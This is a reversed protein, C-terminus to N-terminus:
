SPSPTLEGLPDASVTPFPDEGTLSPDTSPQPKTREDDIANRVKVSVLSGACEAAAASPGPSPVIAPEGDVPPPVCTPERVWLDLTLEDRRWCTYSGKTEQEPCRTVKWPQWGDQRLANEYVGATEEPSKESTVTRERLRCDLLCWRSGSVEDVTKAAAWGPVNLQDLNDFVPDRSLTRIGFFLPVAGLLVVSVLALVAARLRRRERLQRRLESRAGPAAGDDDPVDQGAPRLAPGDAPAPVPRDVPGGATPVVAAARAVGVPEGPRGPPPVPAVGSPEPRGPERNPPLARGAARDAPAPRVAPAGGRAVAPAGPGTGPEGSVPPHVAGAPRVAARAPGDPRQRPPGDPGIGPPVAARAPGDPRAAGRATTEAGPGPRSPGDPGRHGAGTAPADGPAPRARGPPTSRAAGRAPAGPGAAGGGPAPRGGGAPGAYPDDGRDGTAGPRVARRGTPADAAPDAPPGAPRRGTGREAAPDPVALRGPSHDTLDGAGVPPGPRRGAPPPTGGRRNVVPLAPDTHPLRGAQRLWDAPREPRDTRPEGGAPARREQEDPVTRRRGTGDAPGITPAAGTHGSADPVAPANGSRPVVPEDPEAARRHGGSSSRARDAPGHGSTETAGPDVTGPRRRANRPDRDVAPDPRLGGPVPPVAGTSAADFRTGGPATPSGAARAPDTTRRGAPGGDTPLPRGPETTEPGPRRGLPGADPRRLPPMADARGSPPVAAPRRGTPAGTGPPGAPPGAPAAGPRPRAPGAPVGSTPPGPPGAPEGGAPRAATPPALPPGAARPGSGPAPQAGRRAPQGPAPVGPGAARPRDAPPREDPRRGPPPADGPWPGGAPRRAAPGDPDGRHPTPPVPGDPPVPAGGRPGAPEVAAGDPGLESRQQKASRLDDIWGFEEGAVPEEPEAEARGRGWRRGKARPDRREDPGEDPRDAGRSKM